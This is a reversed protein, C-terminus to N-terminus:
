KRLDWVRLGGVMTEPLPGITTFDPIKIYSLDAECGDEVYITRLNKCGAFAGCGVEKLTRM